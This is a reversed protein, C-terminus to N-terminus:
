NGSDPTSDPDIKSSTIIEATNFINGCDPGVDPAIVLTVTDGDNLTLSTLDWIGSSYSTGAPVTSNTANYTLGTPLIDRVSIGTVDCPGSNKVVLTFLVQGGINVANTNPTKTLSLDATDCTTVCSAVDVM